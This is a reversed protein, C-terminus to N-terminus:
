SDKLCFQSSVLLVSPLTQGASLGVEGTVFMRACALRRGQQVGRASDEGERNELVAKM